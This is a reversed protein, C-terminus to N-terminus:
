DLSEEVDTVGGMRAELKQLATNATPKRPRGRKKATQELAPVGTDAEWEADIAQFARKLTRISCKIEMHKNLFEVVMRWGHGQLRYERIEAYLERVAPELRADLTRRKSPLASMKRLESRVKGVGPGDYFSM